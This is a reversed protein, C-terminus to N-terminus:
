QLLGELEQLQLQSAASHLDDVQEVEVILEGTYVFKLLLRWQAATVCGFQLRQLWLQHTLIAHCYFLIM